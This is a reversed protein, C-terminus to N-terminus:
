KDEWLSKSFKLDGVLEDIASDINETKISQDEIEMHLAAEKITSKAVKYARKDLIENIPEKPIFCYALECELANAIRKLNKITIEGRPERAITESMTTYSVGVRNALQSTSMGLADKLYVIWSKVQKTAKTMPRLNELQESVHKLKMKSQSPKM